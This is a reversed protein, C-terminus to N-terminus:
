QHHSFYVGLIDYLRAPADTYGEAEEADKTPVCAMCESPVKVEPSHFKSQLSVNGGEMEQGVVVVVPVM